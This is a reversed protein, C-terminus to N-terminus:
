AYLYVLMLVCMCVCGGVCVGVCMCVCLLRGTLNCAAALMLPTRCNVDLCDLFAQRKVLLVLTQHHHTSAKEASASLNLAGSGLSAKTLGLARCASATVM